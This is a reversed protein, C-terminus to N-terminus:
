ASVSMAVDLDTAFGRVLKSLRSRWAYLADASMGLDQSVREISQEEVYLRVFVDFGKPSLEARLRELMADLAQRSSVRLEPSHVDSAHLDPEPLEDIDNSWPRRARSRFKSFVHHDAILSVFAGLPSREADWSRLVKADDDFLHLFVEQTMDELEDQIDRGARRRYLAKAIRGHIVPGLAGVLARVAAADRAIARAVLEPTAAQPASM